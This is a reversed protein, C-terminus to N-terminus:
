KPSDKKVFRVADAIVYGETGTTEFLVNGSTGKPFKWTGLLQWVYGDKQQNLTIKETGGDHSITVPINEARPPNDSWITHVEYEGAEPLDPTFRISKTGKGDANDHLYDTGRFGDYRKSSHWNGTTEAATNDVIIGSIEEQETPSLKQGRSLLHEALEPYPM